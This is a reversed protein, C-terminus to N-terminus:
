STVLGVTTFRYYFTGVDCEIPDSNPRLKSDADSKVCLIKVGGVAVCCVIDEQVSAVFLQGGGGGGFFFFCSARCSRCVQGDM